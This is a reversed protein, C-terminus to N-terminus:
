SKGHSRMFVGTILRRLATQRYPFHIAQKKFVATRGRNLNTCQAARIKKHKRQRRIFRVRQRKKQAMRTKIERRFYRLAYQARKIKTSM